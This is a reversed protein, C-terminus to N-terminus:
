RGILILPPRARPISNCTGFPSRTRGAVSPMRCAAKELKAATTGPAQNRSRKAPLPAYPKSANLRPAAPPHKTSRSVRATAQMRCFMAATTRLVPAPAAASRATRGPSANAATPAQDPGTGSRTKM